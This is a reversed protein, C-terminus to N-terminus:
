RLFTFFIFFTIAVGGFALSGLKGGYGYFANKSGMLLLGTFISAIVIFFYDPSSTLNTMGVFTGCYVASPASKLLDSDKNFSPVFSVILGITAAALVPSWAFSTHLVYTSIAGLFVFFINIWSALDKDSSKISTKLYTIGLFTFAITILILYFPNTINEYFMAALLGFHSLM